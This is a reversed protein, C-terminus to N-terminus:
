VNNERSRRLQGKQADVHAQAALSALLPFSYLGSRYRRCSCVARYKVEGDWREPRVTIKHDM